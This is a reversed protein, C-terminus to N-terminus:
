ASLRAPDAESVVMVVSVELGERRHAGQFLPRSIPWCGGNLGFSTQVM